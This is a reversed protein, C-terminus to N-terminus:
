ATMSQRHNADGGRGAPGAAQQGSQRGINNIGQAM